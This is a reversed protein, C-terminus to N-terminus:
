KDGGSELISIIIQTMDLDERIAKPLSKVVNLPVKTRNESRAKWYYFGTSVAVQGIWAVCIATIDVTQFVVAMVFLSLLIVYDAVILLKSFEM